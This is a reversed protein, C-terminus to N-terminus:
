LGHFGKFAAHTSLATEAFAPDKNVRFFTLPDGMEEAEGGIGKERPKAIRGMASGIYLGARVIEADEVVSFITASDM